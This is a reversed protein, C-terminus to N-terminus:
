ETGALSERLYATLFIGQATAHFSSPPHGLEVGEHGISLYRGGGAPVLLWNGPWGGDQRQADLFRAVWRTRSLQQQGTEFLMLLRQIYVDSFFPSLTLQRQVIEGTVRIKEELQRPEGCGSLQMLRFGLMQHTICAPSLPKTTLCYNTELQPRVFNSQGINENCTAAYAYLFNYYHIEGLHTGRLMETLTFDTLRRDMLMAESLRNLRAGQSNLYNRFVRVLRPDDSVLAARRIFWWLAPNILGEAFIREENDLLWQVSRQYAQEVEESNYDSRGFNNNLLGLIFAVLVAVSLLGVVKGATKLVRTFRSM